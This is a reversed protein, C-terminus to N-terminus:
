QHRTLVSRFTCIRPFLGGYEAVEWDHESTILFPQDQVTVGPCTISTLVRYRGNPLPEIVIKDVNHNDIKVQKPFEAYWARLGEVTTIPEPHTTTYFAFGEPSLLEILPTADGKNLDWIAMWHHVLSKIRNIPYATSATPLSAATTTDTTM